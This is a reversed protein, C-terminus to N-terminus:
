DFLPRAARLLGQPARRGRLSAALPIAGPGVAVALAIPHDPALAGRGPAGPGISALRPIEGEPPAGAALNRAFIARYRAAHVETRSHYFGAARTWDGTEEYLEKLFRAAYLANAGPDFMAALSPFARGHWKYNIQFCGTDFSIRGQDRAAAAFAYAEERSDFWRGEGELNVAWPWPRQAGDLTRGTETLTIARLVERPVGEVRSAARLAAECLGATEAVSGARTGGRADATPSAAATGALLGIMALILAGSAAGLAFIGAAARLGAIASRRPPIRNLGM